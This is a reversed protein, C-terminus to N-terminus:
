GGIFGKNTGITYVEIALEALPYEKVEYRFSRWYYKVPLTELDSLYKEIDFYNGLLVLKVPHIHYGSDNGKVLLSEAPLANMSVLSLKLSQQLVLDLLRAMQQPSVLATVRASLEKELENNQLTLRQYQKNIDSNPDKKLRMQVLEVQQKLSSISYTIRTREQEAKKLALIKPEIVLAFSIFIIAVWGAFAILIKERQELKSFASEAKTWYEM